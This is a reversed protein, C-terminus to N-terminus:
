GPIRTGTPTERAHPPPWSSPDNPPRGRGIAQAVADFAADADGWTTFTTENIPSTVFNRYRVPLRAGGPAAIEGDVAAGGLGASSANLSASTALQAGTPRSPEIDEVVLRVQAGALPSRALAQEM